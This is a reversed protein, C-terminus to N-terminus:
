PQIQEFDTHRKQFREALRVRGSSSRAGSLNILITFSCTMTDRSTDFVEYGQELLYQTLYIADQSFVGIILAKKKTVACIERSADTAAV